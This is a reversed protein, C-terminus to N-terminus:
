RTARRAIAREVHASIDAVKRDWTEARMLESRELRAAPSDETLAAECARLFEEPSEVYRSWQGYHRIEPVGCAVV